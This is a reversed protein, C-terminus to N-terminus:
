LRRGPSDITPMARVSSFMFIPNLLTSTGFALVIRPSTIVAKALALTSAVQQGDKTPELEGAPLTPAAQFKPKSCAAMVLGAGALYAAAGVQIVRNWSVSGLLRLARM